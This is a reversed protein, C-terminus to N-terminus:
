RKCPSSWSRGWDTSCFLGFEPDDLRPKLAALVVLRGDSELSINVGNGMGPGFENWPLSDIGEKQFLSNFSYGIRKWTRGGNKSEFLQLYASSPTVPRGEATAGHVSVHMFMKNPFRPNMAIDLDGVEGGMADVRKLIKGVGRWEAFSEGANKSIWAKRQRGQLQTMVYIEESDRFDPALWAESQYTHDEPFTFLELPCEFTATCAFLGTFNNGAESRMSALLFAEGSDAFDHPVLFRRDTGPSGVVPIHLPPQILASIQSAQVFSAGQGGLAARDVLLPTIPGFGGLRDAVTFSEGGDTSRYLGEPMQLFVADDDEYAPSVVVELQSDPSVPLGIAAAKEWSVGRDHSRYFSIEGTSPDLAACYGDPTSGLDPAFDIWGCPPSVSATDEFPLASAVGSKGGAFSLLAMFVLGLIWQLSASVDRGIM